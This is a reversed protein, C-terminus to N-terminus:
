KFQMESRYPVPYYGAEQKPIRWLANPSNGTTIINWNRYQNIDHAQNSPIYAFRDRNLEYSSIIFCDDVSVFPRYDLSGEWDEGADLCRFINTNGATYGIISRSATFYGRNEALNLCDNMQCSEGFRGAIGGVNGNGQGKVEGVNVCQSVIAPDSQFDDAVGWVSNVGGIIATALGMLSVTAAIVAPTATGGSLALIIGGAAALSVMGSVFCVGSIADHIVKSTQRHSIIDANRADRKDNMIQNFLQSNAADNAPNEYFAVLENRYTRFDNLIAASALGYSIKPAITAMKKDVASQMNGSILQMDNSVKIQLLPIVNTFENLTNSTQHLLLALRVDIVIASPICKILKIVMSLTSVSAPLVTGIITGLGAIAVGAVDMVIVVGDMISWQKPSGIEGLIGGVAAFNATTSVSEFNACYNIVSSSGALGVIGGIRDGKGAVVGFNNNIALSGIVVKGIIGGCCQEGSIKGMNNTNHIVGIPASGVIGGIYSTGSINGENYSGYVATQAEGCIGGVHLIGAVAGNNHCNAFISNNYVAGQDGGLDRILTTGLIGGVGRAGDVYGENVCAYINSIGTGGVIGGTGFYGMTPDLFKNQTAGHISGKNYCSAIFLTDASGAIGGACSYQATVAAENRCNTITTYSMTSAMGLLGGVGYLGAISSNGGGVACSDIWVMTNVDTAGLIGGVGFGMLTSKVTTKSVTCGRIVTEDQTGGTTIVTGVIGGVGFLGSIESNEINLNKIIANRVFGFLGVGGTTDRKMSIHSITHGGGDYNYSFPTTNANGIADWGYRSDCHISEYTMNIDDIQKFFAGDQFMKRERPDNVIQRLNTLHSAASIIYPDDATGSGCFNTSSSYTGVATAKGNKIEILRGIGFQNKIIELKDWPAPGEYELYLLRYTGDVLGHDLTFASSDNQRLHIGTRMIKEGSPAQFFCTLKEFNFNRTEDRLVFLKHAGVFGDQPYPVPPIDIPKENCAPLLALLFLLPVLIKKKTM